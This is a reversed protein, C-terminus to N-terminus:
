NFHWRLFWHYHVLSTLSNHPRNQSRKILSLCYGQVAQDSSTLLLVINRQSFCFMVKM